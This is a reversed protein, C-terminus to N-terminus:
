KQEFLGVLLMEMAMRDGMRGSKISFETDMCRRFASQLVQRKVSSSYKICLKVTYEHLKLKESISRAEYRKSYLESVGLMNKIQKSLLALIGL